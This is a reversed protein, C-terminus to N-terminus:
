KLTEPEIRETTSFPDNTIPSPCNENECHVLWTSGLGTKNSVNELLEVSGQCFRCCVAEQLKEQLKQGRPKQRVVICKWFFDKTRNKYPGRARAVEDSAQRSRPRFLESFRSEASTEIPEDCAKDDKLWKEQNCYYGKDSEALKLSTVRQLVLKDDEKTKSDLVFVSMSKRKKPPMWNWFGPFFLSCLVSLGRNRHFQTILKTWCLYAHWTHYSKDVILWIILM